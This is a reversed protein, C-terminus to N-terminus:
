QHEGVDREWTTSLKVRLQCLHYLSRTILGCLNLLDRNKLSFISKPPNLTFTDRIEPLADELQIIRSIM